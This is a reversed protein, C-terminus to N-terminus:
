AHAPETHLEPVTTAQPRYDWLWRVSAVTMAIGALLRLTFFIQTWNESRFLEATREVEIWGLASMTGVYLACGGQWLWFAVRPTPRGSLTVLIAANVCTVLGAMALHAHGVLAHTFKLRESNGPLFIFWGSGVLLTWWVTAATLWRRADRTWEHRSWFLPVVPIWLLLTGVAIVQAAEHHSVSGHRVFAYVVWSVGLLAFFPARRRSTSVGLLTPLLLYITVIGLTAGLLSSGTAGGSDPNVAPYVKRDATWYLISPVILLAGLIAAQLVRTARTNRSWRWWAHVALFAWLVHMAIPLLPRTWGHWDLFPKGSTAGGLWAVGGLALAASWAGLALRAHRQAGPHQPDFYWALLMGALPLSCWGYLQWNLHLPAWRGFTFPAIADGAQPWLVCVALWLGGGNAITLWGLSYRAITRGFPSAQMPTGRNM